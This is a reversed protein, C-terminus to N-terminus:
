KIGLQHKMYIQKFFKYHEDACDQWTRPGALKTLINSLSLWSNRHYKIVPYDWCWGIDPAIVPTGMAIAELVPMPGGEIKSTVVLYDIKKYFRQRCTYDSLSEATCFTECPWGDGAAIVELGLNIMKKVFHENKRGSSYTKGCVGFLPGEDRRLDTGLNIVEAEIGTANDIEEATKDSLAIAYDFISLAKFFSDRKIDGEKELHTFLGVRIPASQKYEKLKYPISYDIDFNGRGNLVAGSIRNSLEEAVRSLIWNQNSCIINIKM